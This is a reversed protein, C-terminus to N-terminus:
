SNQVYIPLVDNFHLIRRNGYELIFKNLCLLPDPGELVISLEKDLFYKYGALALLYINFRDYKNFTIHKTKCIKSIMLKSSFFCPYILGQCIIRLILYSVIHKRNIKM